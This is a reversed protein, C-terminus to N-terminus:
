RAACGSDEPVLVMATQAPVVLEETAGYAVTVAAGSLVDVMTEADDLLAGPPVPISRQQEDGRNIVVLAPAGDGADRAYALLDDDVAVTERVGHRLAPSCARAQGLRRVQELTWAEREGLEDGFRMPRRNDPDRSGPMGIEDGYYIVPLGTATLVVAQALVLRRYPEDDDPAPPPDDWAQGVDGAAESLFRTVDHNGAFPAMLAGPGAWARESEDLHAELDVMTTSEWALADRLAWMVPFDFQGDLGHPGLYRLIQDWGFSGTFTEGVVYLETGGREFRRSLEYSLHRVTLRPMMPVADVRVGDLDYREIWWAIDDVQRATIATDRLELDPLYDTFWCTEIHESWPCGESGCVCGEHFDGAARDQWYPHELHVHNPVVDILVRIGRAHAASVLADLDDPTGFEPEIERAAVPWYGHYGEYERGDSGPFTGDPNDYPPSIWLARVGLQEFYGQELKETLGPLDGGYRLGIQEAPASPDDLPGASSAFRDLVVQYLIADEWRFPEDEIWLPLLLPEATVGGADAAEITLTHKGHPLGEARIQIAGAGPRETVTAESGDRFTAVTADLDLAAGSSAQLFTLQIDLTGDAWADVRDVQWAPVACDEVRLLSYETELDDDYATLPELDNLEPKGDVELEYRYDGPELDLGAYWVCPCIEDLATGAWGDWEGRAVVGDVPRHPKAYIRATCDRSPACGAPLLLTAIWLVPLIRVM